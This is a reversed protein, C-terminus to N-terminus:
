RHGHGATEGWTSRDGGAQGAGTAPDGAGGAGNGHGGDGLRERQPTPEPGCGADDAAPQPRPDRATASRAGSPGSGPDTTGAVDAPREEQQAAAHRATDLFATIERSTLGTLEAIDARSLGQERMGAVAAAQQARVQECRRRYERTLEQEVALGAVYDVTHDRIATERAAIQAARAREQERLQGARQEQWATIQAARDAQAVARRAARATRAQGSRAVMRATMTMGVVERYVGGPVDRGLTALM